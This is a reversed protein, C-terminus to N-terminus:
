RVAKMKKKSLSVIQISTYYSNMFSKAVEQIIYINEKVNRKFYKLHSVRLISM